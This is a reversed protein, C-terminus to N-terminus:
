QEIWVIAAIRGTTKDRRYSFFLDGNEHTCYDSKSIKEVKSKRLRLEALHSLNALWKEASIKTFASKYSSDEKTFQAFVDDGVEFHNPGIGPGIFVELREPTTRFKALTMELIGASLGRWGAHAVAIENGEESAIIVPLCDAVLIGCPQKPINTYVADGPADEETEVYNLVKTGHVQKPFRPPYPALSFIVDRNKKVNEIRDGVNYSLNLSNYPAPSFGGRRTTIIYKVGKPADWSKTLLSSNNETNQM